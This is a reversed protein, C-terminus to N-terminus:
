GVEGVKAVAAELERVSVAGEFREVIRGDEGIVFTWPETPLRWAGVQPRFGADIRNENYIEQHIFTVGKTKAEVEAAVDVVPGCVRTQCLQPTAFVLVVPEKGLVDAFDSEHMARLPPIRTDIKELDGGVDEPTDTHVSIAKEGVDPPAGKGDGVHLEFQSTTIMEGDVQALAALVFRGQKPFPVDAVWFSNVDDADAATQRSQFQPKVALSERRAIFPGRLRRKDSQAFYLAVGEPQVQNRGADFLAFGIRNEGKELVSVAPAFIAGEAIQDRLGRLTKTSGDPFEVDAAATTTTGPESGSAKDGDSESGGCGAVALCLFMTLLSVFRVM